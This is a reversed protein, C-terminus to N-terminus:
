PLSELFSIDISLLIGPAVGPTGASGSSGPTRLADAGGGHARWRQGERRRGQWPTVLLPGPARHKKGRRRGGRRLASAASLAQGRAAKGHRTALREEGCPVLHTNLWHLSLIVFKFVPLFSGSDSVPGRLPRPRPDSHTPAAGAANGMAM